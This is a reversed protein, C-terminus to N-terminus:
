RSVGFLYGAGLAFLAWVGRGPTFSLIPTVQQPRCVDPSVVGREFSATVWDPSDWAFVPTEDDCGVATSITFPTVFLDSTLVVERGVRVLQRGEIGPGEHVFSAERVTDGSEVFVTDTSAAQSQVRLSAVEVRLSQVTAADSDRASLAAALAESLSDAVDENQLALRSYSRVSDVLHTRTTDHAAALNDRAVQLNRRSQALLYSQTAVTAGALVLALSLARLANM